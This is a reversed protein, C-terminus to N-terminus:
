SYVQFREIVSYYKDYLDNFIDQAKESYRTGDDDEVIINGLRYDWNIRMEIEALESALELINVTINGKLEVTEKHCNECKGDFFQDHRGFENGCEYCKWIDQEHTM